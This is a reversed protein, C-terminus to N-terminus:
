TKQPSFSLCKYLLFVNICAKLSYKRQVVSPMTFAGNIIYPLLYKFVDQLGMSIIDTSHPFWKSSGIVQTTPISYMKVKTSKM